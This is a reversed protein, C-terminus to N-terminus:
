NKMTGAAFSRVVTIVAPNAPPPPGPLPPDGGSPAVGLVLTCMWVANDAPRAGREGLVVVMGGLGAAGADQWGGPMKPVLWVVDGADGDWEPTLPVGGARERGPCGLKGPGLGPMSWREMGPHSFGKAPDGVEESVRSQPALSAAGLDEHMRDLLWLLFELADHQANGRFQASHKSVINQLLCALLASLGTRYCGGWFGVGAVTDARMGPSLLAPLDSPSAALLVAGHGM